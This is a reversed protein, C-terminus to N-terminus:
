KLLDNLADQAIEEPTWERKSTEHTLIVRGDGQAVVGMHYRASYSTAGIGIFIQHTGPNFSANMMAPGIPSEPDTRRVTVVIPTSNDFHLIDRRKNFAASLVKLKEVVEEWLTPGYQALMNRRLQLRSDESIQQEERSRMRSEATAAWKDPDFMWGGQKMSFDFAIWGKV